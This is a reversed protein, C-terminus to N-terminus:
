AASAAAHNPGGCGAATATPCATPSAPPSQSPPAIPAQGSAAGSRTPASHSGAATAQAAARPTQPGRPPLSAPSPAGAAAPAPRTARSPVARARPPQAVPSGASSYQRSRQQSLIHLSWFHDQTPPSPWEEAAAGRDAEAEQTPERPRVAELEEDLYAADLAAAGDVGSAPPRAPARRGGALAGARPPRATPSRGRRRRRYRRAGRGNSWAARAVMSSHAACGGTKAGAPRKLSKKADAKKACGNKPWGVARMASSATPGGSARMWKVWTRSSDRRM